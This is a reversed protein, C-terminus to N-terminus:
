RLWPPEARSNLSAELLEAQGDALAVKLTHGTPPIFPGDAQRPEPRGHILFWPAVQGPSETMRCIAPFGEFHLQDVVKAFKPVLSSPISGVVKGDFLVRVSGAWKGSKEVVLQATLLEGFNNVVTNADTAHHSAGAVEPGSSGDQLTPWTLWAGPVHSSLRGERRGFMM